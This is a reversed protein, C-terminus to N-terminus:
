AAPSLAALKEAPTRGERAMSFRETNYRTEWARLAGAAQECAFELRDTRM